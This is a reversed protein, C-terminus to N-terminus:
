SQKVPCTSMGVLTYLPCFSIFSTLIFIAGLAVLVYGLVGVVTGSFFLYGFVAALILRVIRDTNGMNKKM